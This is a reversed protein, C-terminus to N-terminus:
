QSDTYESFTLPLVCCLRHLPPTIPFILHSILIINHTHHTLYIRETDENAPKLYQVKHPVGHICPLAQLLSNANM